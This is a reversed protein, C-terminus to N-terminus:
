GVVWWVLAAILGIWAAELALVAVIILRHLRRRSRAAPGTAPVRAVGGVAGSDAFVEAEFDVM